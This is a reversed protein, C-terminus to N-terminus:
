TFDKRLRLKNSFKFIHRGGRWHLFSIIENQIFRDPTSLLIAIKKIDRKPNWFDVNLSQIQNL